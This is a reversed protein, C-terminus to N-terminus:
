GARGSPRDQGRRSPELEGSGLPRRRNRDQPGPLRGGRGPQWVGPRLIAQVQEEVPRRGRQRLRPVCIRLRGLEDARIVDTFAMAAEVAMRTALPADPPTAHVHYDWGDHRMLQPVANAERLRQNVLTVAQGRDALWLQRLWPRLEHVERLEAATRWRKGTWRWTRVFEDLAPMDPLQETQGDATNVLAAAAQLAVETDHSFLM